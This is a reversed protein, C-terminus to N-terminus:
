VGAPAKFRVVMVTVNDGTGESLAFNLLARSAEQTDQIHRIHNVAQEDTMVDWIQVM